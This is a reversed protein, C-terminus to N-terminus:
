STVPCLVNQLLRVNSFSSQGTAGCAPLMVVAVLHHMELLRVQRAAEFFNDKWAPYDKVLRTFMALAEASACCCCLLPSLLLFTAGSAQVHM